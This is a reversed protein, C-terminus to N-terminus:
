ECRFVGASDLQVTQGALFPIDLSATLAVDVTVELGQRNLCPQTVDPTVTVAPSPGFSTSYANAVATEIDTQSSGPFSATRAGERAAANLSQQQSLLLGIQVLGLVLMILVPSIM